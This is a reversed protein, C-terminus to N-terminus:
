EEVFIMKLKIHKATIRETKEIGTRLQHSRIGDGDLDLLPATIVAFNYGDFSCKPFMGEIKDRYMVKARLEFKKQREYKKRIVVDGTPFRIRDVM